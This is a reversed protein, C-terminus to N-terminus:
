AESAAIDVFLSVVDGLATLSANKRQNNVWASSCSTLSSALVALERTASRELHRFTAEATTEFEKNQRLADLYRAFVQSRAGRMLITDLSGAAVELASAAGGALDFVSTGATAACISANLDRLRTQESTFLRELEEKLYLLKTEFTETKPM